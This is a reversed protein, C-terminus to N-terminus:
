SKGYGGGEKNMDHLTKIEWGIFVLQNQWINNLTHDEVPVHDVPFLHCSDNLQLDKPCQYDCPTHLCDETPFAAFNGM